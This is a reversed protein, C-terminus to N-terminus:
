IVGRTQGTGDVMAGVVVEHIDGINLYNDV